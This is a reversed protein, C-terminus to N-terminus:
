RFQLQLNMLRLALVCCLGSTLSELRKIVDLINWDLARLFVILDEDWGSLELVGMLGTDVLTLLQGVGESVEM